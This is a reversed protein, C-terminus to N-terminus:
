CQLLSSGINNQAGGIREAGLVIDGSGQYVITNRSIGDLTLVFCGVILVDVGGQIVAGLKGYIVPCVQNSGQM